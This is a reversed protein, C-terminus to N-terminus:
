WPKKDGANGEMDNLSPVIASRQKTLDGVVLNVFVPQLFGGLRMSTGNMGINQHGVMHMEQDGWGM